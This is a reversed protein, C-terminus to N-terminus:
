CICFFFIKLSVKYVVGFGGQGLIREDSFNDTIEKLFQLQMIDPKSSEHRCSYSDM